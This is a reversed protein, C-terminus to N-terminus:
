KLPVHEASRRPRPTGDVVVDVHQRRWCVGFRPYRRGGGPAQRSEDAPHRETQEPRRRQWLRDAAGESARRRTSTSSSAASSRPTTSPKGLRRRPVVTYDIDPVEREVIGRLKKYDTILPASQSATVKYFGSVNVHSSMLTTAANLLTARMGNYLGALTLLLRHRARHSRRARVHPAPAAASWCRSPCRAPEHDSIEARRSFHLDAIKPSRELQSRLAAAHAADVVFSGPARGGPEADLDRPRARREASLHPPWSRPLPLGGGGDDRARAGRCSDRQLQAGDALLAPGRLLLLRLREDRDGHHGMWMVVLGSGVALGIFRLRRRRLASRHAGHLVFDGQAQDGSAHRVGTHTSTDDDHRHAHHHGRRHLHHRRRHRPDAAPGQHDQRARRRTSGTSPRSAWNRRRSIGNIQAVASGITKPNADEIIAADLIVGNDIEEQTVRSNLDDNRQNKATGSM